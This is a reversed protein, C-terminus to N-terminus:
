SFEVNRVEESINNGSRLRLEMATWCVPWSNLSRGPPTSTRPSQLLIGTCAQSAGATGSSVSGGAPITGVLIFDFGKIKYFECTHGISQNQYTEMKREKGVENERHSHM